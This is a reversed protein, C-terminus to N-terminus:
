PVVIIADCGFFKHTDGNGDVWEGKVCGETDGPGLGTQQTLFHLIMDADADKTKEDLEYSRKPHGKGHSEFAGGLEDFVIDAPGFRVSTPDITTADFALPLGYEGAETTLVAV